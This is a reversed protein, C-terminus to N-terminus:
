SERAHTLTVLTKGAKEESAIRVDKHGKKRVSKESRFMVHEVSKHAHTLCRTQRDTMGNGDCSSRADKQVSIM